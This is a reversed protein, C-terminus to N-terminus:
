YIKGTRKYYVVHRWIRSGIAFVILLIQVILKMGLPNSPLLILVVLVAYLVDRFIM